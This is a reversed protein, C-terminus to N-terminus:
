TATGTDSVHEKASDADASSKEKILDEPVADPDMEADEKTPQPAVKGAKKRRRFVVWDVCRPLPIFTRGDDLEPAELSQEEAREYSIRALIYELTTLNKRLLCMHFVLLTGIMLLFPANMVTTILLVPLVVEKPAGLALADSAEQILLVINTFFFIGLMCVALTMAAWFSRYNAHGVCNNLWICHHDFRDVCRNCTNCHETRWEQRVHCTWCVPLQTNIEDFSGKGLKWSVNQHSPDTIAVHVGAGVMGLVVLAYVVALIIQVVSDQVLPLACFAFVLGDLLIIVLLVIQLPSIPRECGHRRVPSTPAFNKM